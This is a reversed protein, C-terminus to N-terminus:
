CEQQVMAEECHINIIDSHGFVNEVPYVKKNIVCGKSDRTYVTVFMDKERDLFCIIKEIFTQASIIM